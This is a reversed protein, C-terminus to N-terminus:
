GEDQTGRSSEIQDLILLQNGTCIGLFIDEDLEAGLKELHPRATAEM